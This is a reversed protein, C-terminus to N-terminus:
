DGFDPNVASAVEDGVREQSPADVVRKKEINIVAPVFFLLTGTAVCLGGALLYWASLGVRDAMPGALALSFPSTLSLLSSMLMFVRGQVEPAVRAQLIAMMPGDIMPIMLGVVFVAGTALWFMEQPTFGILLFSLGLLIMGTLHTHIRRRFGGWLSLALGGLVIGVGATAELLSLQAADGGFYDSVLLPILSFAPTLGIKFVMVAAILIVFGQREWIYQLGARMDQWVSLQGGSLETQKPHPIRVFFLPLVAIAATAVDVLMIGAYPMWAVLLAGLPAGIINLVGNLTQNMGAVRGLQEEPVMLATSAHMAPWHFSGGVARVFMILYVHWVQTAEQWYMFALWLSALAILSDAVIMILRRNWRDVLVGALPGLLIEPILAVMSATALVTASGTLQTLWWILAFQVVKSGVLSFVQGTWISFFRTKWSTELESM